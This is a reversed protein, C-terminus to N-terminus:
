WRMWTCRCYEFLEEVSRPLGREGFEFIVPSTMHTM